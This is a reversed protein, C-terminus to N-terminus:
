NLKQRGKKEKGVVVIDFQNDLVQRHTWIQFECLIKASNNKLSKRLLRWWSKSPDVTPQVGCM